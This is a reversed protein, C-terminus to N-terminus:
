QDLSDLLKHIEKIVLPAQEKTFLFHDANEHSVTILISDNFHQRSYNLNIYPVIWDKKGHVHVSPINIQALLPRLKILEKVHAMKEDSSVRLLKPFYWKTLKWWSLRAIAKFKENDPDLAPALLLLAKLDQPYDIALRAIIPGGYSHGIAIVNRGKYLSILHHLQDAQKELSPESIGFNSHGYGLRDVSILIARDILEKNRLFQGFMESSGPSGHVFLLIPKSASSDQAIELYQYSIGQLKAKKIRLPVGAEKYKALTDANTSSFLVMLNM